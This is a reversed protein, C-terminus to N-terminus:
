NMKLSVFHVEVKYGNLGTGTNTAFNIRGSVKTIADERQLEIYGGKASNARHAVGEGGNEHFLIGCYDIREDELNYFGSQINRDKFVVVVTYFDRNPYEPDFDNAHLRFAYGPEDRHIFYSNFIIMKDDFIRHIVGKMEGREPDNNMTDARSLQKFHKM